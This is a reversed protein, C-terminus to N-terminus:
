ALFFWMAVLFVPILVPISYRIVYGFFSPMKVGAQEAIARVLEKRGYGVNVCWLGSMADIYERGQRDRVRLGCGETIVHPGTDHHEQVSTFPHLHHRRDLDEPTHENQDATAM